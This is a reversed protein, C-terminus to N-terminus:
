NRWAKGKLSEVPPSSTSCSKGDLFVRCAGPAHRPYPALPCGLTLHLGSFPSTSRARRGQGGPLTIVPSWSDESGSYVHKLHLSWEPGNKTGKPGLITGLWIRPSIHFQQNTPYYKWIHEARSIRCLSDLVRFRATCANRPFNVAVIINSLSSHGSLEDM